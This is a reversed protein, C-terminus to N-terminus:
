NVPFELQAILWAFSPAASMEGLKMKIYLPQRQSKNRKKEKGTM